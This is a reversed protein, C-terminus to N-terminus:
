SLIGILVDKNLKRLDITSSSGAAIPALNYPSQIVSGFQLTFSFQYGPSKYQCRVRVKTKASKNDSFDPVPQQKAKKLRDLIDLPDKKNLLFFGHTGVNLYFCKKSNYYDAIVKNPVDVYIDGAGAGGFKAIDIKYAEKQDSAGVYIKQGNKYQLVPQRWKKNMVSLIDIKEGVSKMFEKEINGDTPGFNWENNYYQMVLSGAATPQNKLEVGSAVKGVKITLDPKDSSAGAPSGYSLNYKKLAKFANQEYLFGQQAAM